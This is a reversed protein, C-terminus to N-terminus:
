PRVEPLWLCTSRQNGHLWPMRERYQGSRRILGARRVTVKHSGVAACARGSRRVSRKTPLFFALLMGLLSAIGGVLFVDGYARSLVEVVDHGNWRGGICIFHRWDRRDRVVHGGDHRCQQV